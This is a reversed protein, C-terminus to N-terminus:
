ICCYYQQLATYSCVYYLYPPTYLYYSRSTCYFMIHDSFPSSSQRQYEGRSVPVFVPMIRAICYSVICVYNRRYLITNDLSPLYFSFQRERVRSEASAYAAHSLSTTLNPLANLAYPTRCCTKGYRLTAVAVGM